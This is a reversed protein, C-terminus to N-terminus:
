PRQAERKSTMKKFIGYSSVSIWFIEILFSPMNFNETLSGVVMLSGILNLLLFDLATTDTGRISRFYQSVIVLSGAFGVCQLMM